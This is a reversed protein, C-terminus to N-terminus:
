QDMCKSQNHHITIWDNSNNLDAIIEHGTVTVNKSESVSVDIVYFFSLLKWQTKIVPVQCSIRQHGRRIRFRGLWLRLRRIHVKRNRFRGPVGRIHWSKGALWLVASFWYNIIKKFWITLGKDPSIKKWLLFWFGVNLKVEIEYTFVKPVISLTM